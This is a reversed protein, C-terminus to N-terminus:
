IVSVIDKDPNFLTGPKILLINQKEPNHCQIYRGNQRTSYNNKVPRHGGIYYINDSDEGYLAKITGIVSKEKAEDNATWTFSKIVSDSLLGEIIEDRKYVKEPEAHSLICNNFTAVLPYSHEVEALKETIEIGYAEQMFLTVMEGESVFKCFPYNGRGYENLINEHNGKLIHFNKPFTIKLLFVMCELTLGEVMEATMAPGSNIGLGVEEAAMFWRYMGRAESHLIDGLSLLYIRGEQLSELITGGSDLFTKPLHYHLINQLFFYRAHLDPIVVLPLSLNDPTFDLLGGPKKASSRPRYSPSESQLVEYISSLYSSLYSPSPLKALSVNEILSDIESIISM